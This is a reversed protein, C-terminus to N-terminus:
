IWSWVFNHAYLNNVSGQINATWLKFIELSLMNGIDSPLTGTLERNFGMFLQTLNALKTISSPISSTLSCNRLDLVRLKTLDSVSSSLNGTLEMNHSLNLDTLNISSYLDDPIEGDLGNMSLNLYELRELKRNSFVTSLDGDIFNLSM